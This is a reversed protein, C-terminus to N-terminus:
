SLVSQKIDDHETHVQELVLQFIARCLKPDIGEAIAQQEIAELLETERIPDITPLDNEKKYRGVARTLKFRRALANVIDQNAQDIGVRLVSLETENM